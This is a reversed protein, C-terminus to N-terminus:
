NWPYEYDFLKMDIDYTDVINQQLNVPIDNTSASGFLIKNVARNRSPFSVSTNFLLPMLFDSNEKMTEMKVIYDYNIACPNCMQYFPMWHRNRSQKSTIWQLFEDLTVLPGFNAKEVDEWTYNKHDSDFTYPRIHEYEPPLTTNKYRTEKIIKVGGSRCMHCVFGGQEGVQPIFKNNYASVVRSVPNRVAIVKKYHKLRYKIEESSYSQLPIIGNERQFKATHVLWGVPKNIDYKGQLAILLWKWSSCAVKAIYCFMLKHKEDVVLTAPIRPFYDDHKGHKGTMNLTKCVDQVRQRSKKQENNWKMLWLQKALFDFYCHMMM